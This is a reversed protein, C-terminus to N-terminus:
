IYNYFIKCLKKNVPESIGIYFDKITLKPSLGGHSLIEIRDSYFAFM